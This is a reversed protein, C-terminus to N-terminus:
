ILILASQSDTKSFHSYNQEVLYTDQSTYKYGYILTCKTKKKKERRM